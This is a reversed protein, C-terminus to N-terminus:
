FPLELITVQSTNDYSNNISTFSNDPVASIAITHSGAPLHAIWTLTPLTFNALNMNGRMTTNAVKVGDIKLDVGIYDGIPISTFPAYAPDFLLVNASVTIVQTGGGSNYIASRPLAQGTIALVNTASFRPSNITTANLAGASVNNANINGTSINNATLDKTATINGSVNLNATTNPGVSFTNANWTAVARNGGGTTGLIGGSNGALVPGDISTGGFSNTWGMFANADQGGRLFIPQDNLRLGGVFNNATVTGNVQLATGPTTTNIGVNTGTINVVPQNSGAVLSGATGAYQALFAYPGPLFRLRPLITFDPTTSPGIGKVTFEVYRQDGDPRAFLSSLKAPRPESQYSSGEGLLVSFYGNDVTVTQQETWLLHASDKAVPDSWIRFLVDYNKPGTNTPGLTKGAGDVLYGQYTLREPPSALQAPADSPRIALLALALCLIRRVTASVSWLSRDPASVFPSPDVADACRLPRAPFFSNNMLSRITRSISKM